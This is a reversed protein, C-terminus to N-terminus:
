AKAPLLKASVISEALRWCASEAQQLLEPDHGKGSNKREMACVKLYTDLAAMVKPAQIPKENTRAIRPRRGTAYGIADALATARIDAGVLKPEDHATFVEKSPALVIGMVSFNPKVPAVTKASAKRAIPKKTVVKKTKM